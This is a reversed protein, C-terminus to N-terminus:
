RSLGGYAEEGLEGIDLGIEEEEPKTRLGMTVDIIKGIVLTGVFAYAGVSIIGVIQKVLQAWDGSIVGNSGAANVAVTAFIGTALMGWISGMGHFSFVDLADDVGLKSRMLRASNFSIFSVVIGIPIGAIPAVFGAAPTIAVLGAVAGSAAGLVTPKGHRWDLFMWTLAAAAASLNTAMFANGALGGATLASGANFGFWGFWLLGTGLLVFPINNPKDTKEKTGKRPGLLLAMALASAGANIHVVSGGAFDLLGLKALWGGGWVWHAVPSYIFTLWFVAFLLLSNFKIRDVVAGTILAVTIVAFMSQFVMYVVQPATTAYIASPLEGVNHLGIFSLNGVFGGVDPGFALSYGWLSWIIGGVGLMIFSTMLTFLINKRGVMGGYFFALGPTMLMVLAASVLLWATDGSNIPM